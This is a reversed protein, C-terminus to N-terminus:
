VAPAVVRVRLVKPVDIYGDIHQFVRIWVAQNVKPVGYRAVFLKTIDCWGDEPPPLLGLLPFKQVLRVGSRKPAPGQVLTYQAPRGTVRLKLTITGGTGTIVLEAVPTPPFVPKAPPMEFQPLSLNARRINLRKFFNYGNLRVLKGTETVFADEAAAIGWASRQESTLTRWRNCIAVLNRRKDLQDATRPDRPRVYQRAVYGYRGKFYVVKGEQGSKSISKIKMNSM